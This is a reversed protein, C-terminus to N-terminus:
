FRFFNPGFLPVLNSSTLTKSSKKLELESIKEIKKFVSKLNSNLMLNRLFHHMVHYNITFFLKKTAKHFVPASVPNLHPPPCSKKPVLFNM